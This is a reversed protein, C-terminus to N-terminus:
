PLDQAGTKKDQKELELGIELRWRLYKKIKRIAFYFLERLLKTIKKREKETQLNRASM